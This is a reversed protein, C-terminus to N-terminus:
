LRLTAPDAGGYSLLNMAASHVQEARREATKPPMQAIEDLQYHGNMVAYWHETGPPQVFLAARGDPTVETRLTMPGNVTGADDTPVGGPGPQLGGIFSWGDVPAMADVGTGGATDFIAM